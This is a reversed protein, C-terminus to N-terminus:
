TITGQVENLQPFSCRLQIWYLVAQIRLIPHSGITVSFHLGGVGGGIGFHDVRNAPHRHVWNRGLM